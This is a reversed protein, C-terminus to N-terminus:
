QKRAVAKRAADAIDKAVLGYKELLGLPTGSEAYTDKIGIFEMITPQTETVV